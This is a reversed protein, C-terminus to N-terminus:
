DPTERGKPGRGDAFSSTEDTVSSRLINAGSINVPRASRLERRRCLVLESSDTFGGFALRCRDTRPSFAKEAGSDVTSESWLSDRRSEFGTAPVSADSPSTESAVCFCRGTLPGFFVSFDSADSLAITNTHIRPNCM